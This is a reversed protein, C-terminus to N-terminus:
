LVIVNWIPNTALWFSILHNAIHMSRFSLIIITQNLSEFIDLCFKITLVKLQELWYTIEVFSQENTIDFVLLFGLSDRYFASTLSRFRNLFIYKSMKNNFLHLSDIFCFWMKVNMSFQLRLFFDKCFKVM